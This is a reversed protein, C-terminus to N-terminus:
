FGGYAPAYPVQYENEEEESLYDESLYDEALYNMEGENLVMPLAELDNAYNYEGEALMGQSQLLNFVGVGAMGAGVNPMKLAVSAIFGGAITYLAKMQPTTTTPYVKSLLGAGVGGIAGSILVKASAQAQMPNFMESLFGKKRTTRRRVTPRKAVSRRPARRKAVTTRKRKM